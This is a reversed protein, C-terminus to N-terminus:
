AQEIDEITKICNCVHTHPEPDHKVYTIVYKNYWQGRKKLLVHARGIRAVHVYDTPAGPAPGKYTHCPQGAM